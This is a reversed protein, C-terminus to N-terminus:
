NGYTKDWEQKLKALIECFNDPSIIEPALTRSVIDFYVNIRISELYKMFGPSKPFIKEMADLCDKAWVFGAIKKVPGEATIRQLTVIVKNM